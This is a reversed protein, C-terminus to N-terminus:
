SHCDSTAEQLFHCKSNSQLSLFASRSQGGCPSSWQSSCLNRALGVLPQKEAYCRAAPEAASDEKPPRAELSVQEQRTGVSGAMLGRWDREQSGSTDERVFRWAAGQSGRLWVTLLVTSEAVWVLGQVLTHLPPPLGVQSGDPGDQFHPFNAAAESAGPSTLPSRHFSPVTESPPLPPHVRTLHPPLRGRSFSCLRRAPDPGPPSSPLSVRVPALACTGLQATM